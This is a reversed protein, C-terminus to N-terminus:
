KALEREIAEYAKARNLNFHSQLVNELKMMTENVEDMTGRMQDMKARVENYAKSFEDMFPM